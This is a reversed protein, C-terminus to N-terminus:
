KPAIAKYLKILNFGFVRIVPTWALPYRIDGALMHAEFSKRTLSLAKQDLRVYHTPRLTLM